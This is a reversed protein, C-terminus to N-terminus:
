SVMRPPPLDPTLVISRQSRGHPNELAIIMDVETIGTRIEGPRTSLEEVTVEVGQRSLSRLKRPLACVAGTCAKAFECALREAAKQVRVPIPLGKLYEVQFAPPDQQSYNVCTPWCEGDTRVLIHGNHVVYASPDLIVGGLTVETIGATSTPGELQVECGACCDSEQDSGTCSNHWAGSRVYAPGYDPATVPYVQYERLMSPKHCPQVVVTCQGYQRATAAWMVGIALAAATERVEPTYTNWCQGCGCKTIEWGCPESM